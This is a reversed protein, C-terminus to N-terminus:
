NESPDPVYVNLITTASSSGCDKSIADVEICGWNNYPTGKPATVKVIFKYSQGSRLTIENNSKRNASKSSANAQISVNLDINSNQSKSSTKGTNSSKGCAGELKKTSLSYTNTNSSTNTLILKFSVGDAYASKYNRNKEVSLDASCKAFVEEGSNDFSNSTFTLYAVILIFISKM